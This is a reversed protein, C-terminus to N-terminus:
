SDARAPLRDRNARECSPRGVPRWRIVRGPMLFGASMLTWLALRSQNFEDVATIRYRYCSSQFAPSTTTRTQRHDMLQKRTSVSHDWMCVKIRAHCMPRDICRARTATVSYLGKAAATGSKPLSARMRRRAERCRCAMHDHIEITRLISGPAGHVGLGQVISRRRETVGFVPQRKASACQEQEDARRPARATPAQRATDDAGRSYRPM